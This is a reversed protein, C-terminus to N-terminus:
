FTFALGGRVARASQVLYVTRGDQAVLPVYGQKLLNRLDLVAEFHGPLFGLGPIPQRVALNFFPETQGASANFADVPTLARDSTWRYSTTWRTRSRPLLGSVRGSMAQRQVTHMQEQAGALTATSGVFDLADGYAYDLVATFEDSLKRQMVVRVGRASFDKGQYTFTGSYPDPLVDGNLSRIDGIGVLAPNGIRDYFAALQLSNKGLRRSISLEHHHARELAPTFGDVSVRPSVEYQDMPLPGLEKSLRTSPQKSSFRYELVANPSIHWNAEGFPLVASARRMFQMTQLESGFHLEIVDGFTLADSASLSVSSLTSDPLFPGASAFRRATLSIEPRSGNAFEQSFSAHMIASPPSAGYGVNGGFTLKGTSFVTHELTFRTSVDPSSGYGSSDSGAAFYLSTRLGHDEGEVPAGPPLVRLVPRNAASRLMWKWDDQDTTNTRPAIQLVGFISTLSLNVISSADSRVNVRERLSPLFSPASVRVNYLGPLLGTVSYFGREDTFATVTHSVSRFVEVLAGMQPVGGPTRVFGSISGPRDAASATLGCLLLAISIGLKRLM